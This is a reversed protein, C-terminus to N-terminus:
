PRVAYGFWNFCPLTASFAGNDDVIAGGYRMWHGEEVVTSFDSTLACDISGLVYLDVMTGGSLGTEAVRLPFGVDGTVNINPTFGWVGHFDPDTSRRFCPVPDRAALKRAALRDYGWDGFITAPTIDLELGGAFRVTRTANRDGEPPLDPVPTTEYLVFPEAIRLEAPSPPLDVDCFTDAFSGPVDANLDPRAPDFVRVVLNGICRVSEPLVQEFVGGACSPIPRLCTLVGSNADRICAQGRGDELPTGREDAIVAGLVTTWRGSCAPDPAPDVNEEVRCSGADPEVGGDPDGTTGGDACGFLALVAFAFLSLFLPKSWRTGM